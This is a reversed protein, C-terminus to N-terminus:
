LVELNDENLNAEYAQLITINGDVVVPDDWNIARKWYLVGDLNVFDASNATATPLVSVYEIVENKSIGSPSLSDLKIKDTVSMLGNSSQTAVPQNVSLKFYTPSPAPTSSTHKGTCVWIGIGYNVLDGKYYQTGTAYDGKYIEVAGKQGNVMTVADTNDVKDWKTGSYIAWDGVEYGDFGSAYTGDPNRQGLVSCIYYDGKKLTGIIQSSSSSADWTGKYVVQGLLEDPIYETNVKGDVILANDGDPKADQKLENEAKTAYITDIRNGNGDRIASDVQIKTNKLKVHKYSVNSTSLSGNSQMWSILASNTADSGGTIKIIRNAESQWGSASSYALYSGYRLTFAQGMPSSEQNFEFSTYAINNCTFNLNYQNLLDISISNEGAWTYGTLNTVAM